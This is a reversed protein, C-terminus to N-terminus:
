VDKLQESLETKLQRWYVVSPLQKPKNQNETRLKNALVPFTESYWLGAELPNNHWWRHCRACLAKINEPNAALWKNTEKPIVHSADIKYGKTKTRGCHQCKYKDRQKAITGALRLCSEYLKQKESKRRRKKKRKRM